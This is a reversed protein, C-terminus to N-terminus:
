QILQSIISIFNEGYTTTVSIKIRCTLAVNVKSRALHQTREISSAISALKSTSFSVLVNSTQDGEIIYGACFM